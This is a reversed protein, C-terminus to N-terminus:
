SWSRASILCVSMRSSGPRPRSRTTSWSTWGGWVEQSGTGHGTSPAPRAHGDSGVAAECGLAKLEAALGNLKELSRTALLLKAGSAALERATAMGIGAPGDSNSSQGSHGDQDGKRNGDADPQVDPTL